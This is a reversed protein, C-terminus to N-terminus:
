TVSQILDSILYKSLTTGYIQAYDSIDKGHGKPIEISPFPYKYAQHKGDNDFLVIIHKYKSKFHKFYEKPMVINESRPAVSEYGLVCLEMVDKLSKTIILTDQEYSLQEFGEIYHSPYNNIFKHEESDPQYIKYYKGIRYAYTLQKPYVIHTKHKHKYHLVDVATVNYKDLIIFPIKYKGFWFTSDEPKWNRSTIGIGVKEKIIPISKDILKQTIQQVSTDNWIGLLFDRDVIDFATLYKVGYLCAIFKFVNGSVGTAQDKFYIRGLDYSSFFLSFSPNNDGERLPSSYTEGITFDEGIYHCYLTYDDVYRFITEYNKPLLEVMM